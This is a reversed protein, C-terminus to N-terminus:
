LKKYLRDACTKSGGHRDYEPEGKIRFKYYRTIFHLFETNVKQPRLVHFETSGFGIGNPLNCAICGKGNEFSPTIKAILIDGDEFYTYGSNVNKCEVEDYEILRGSESVNAM